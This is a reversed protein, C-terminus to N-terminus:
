RGGMQAKNAGRLELRPKKDHRSLKSRRQHKLKGKGKAGRKRSTDGM